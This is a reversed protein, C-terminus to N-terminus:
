TFCFRAFSPAHSTSERSLPRGTTGKPAKEGEKYARGTGAGIQRGGAGDKNRKNAREEGWATARAGGARRRAAGGGRKSCSIGGVHGGTQRAWPSINLFSLAFNTGWVPGPTVAASQKVHFLFPSDARFM